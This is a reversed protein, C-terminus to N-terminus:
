VASYSRPRSSRVTSAMTVSFALHCWSKVLSSNVLACDRRFCYPYADLSVQSRDAEPIVSQLKALCSMRTDYDATNAASFDDIANLLSFLPEPLRYARGEVALFAGHREVRLSRNAEGIWRAHVSFDPDTILGSVDVQLAARVSPPFELSLAQPETLAAITVHDLLLGDGSLEVSSNPDDLLALIRSLGSFAHDAMRAAWDQVPVASSRGIWPKEILRLTAGESNTEYDFFLRAM